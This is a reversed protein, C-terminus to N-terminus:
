ADSAARWTARTLRYLVYESRPREGHDAHAFGVRELVKRMAQNTPATSAQIQGVGQQFLWDLFLRVADTGVGRGRDAVDYISIGLEPSGRAQCPPSGSPQFTQIEGVLCGDLEIGLNIRGDRLKGWQALDSRLQERNPRAALVGQEALGLRGEFLRDLDDLLLPRIVVREGQLRTM